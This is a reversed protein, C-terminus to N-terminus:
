SQLLMPRHPASRRRTTACSCTTPSTRSSCAWHASSRSFNSESNGSASQRSNSDIVSSSKLRGGRFSIQAHRQRVSALRTRGVGGLESDQGRGQAPRRRRRRPPSQEPLPLRRAPHGAPHRRPNQARDRRPRPSKARTGLSLAQSRVSHPLFETEHHPTQLARFQGRGRLVAEVMSICEWPEGM